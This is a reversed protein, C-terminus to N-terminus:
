YLFMIGFKIAIWKGSELSSLLIAFNDISNISIVNKQVCVFLYTGCVDVKATGIHKRDFIKVYFPRQSSFLLYVTSWYSAM